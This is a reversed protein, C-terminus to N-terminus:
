WPKDYSMSSYEIDMIVEQSHYKQNQQSITYVSQDGKCYWQPGKNYSLFEFLVLTGTELSDSSYTYTGAPGLSGSFLKRKSRMKEYIWSYANSCIFKMPLDDLM